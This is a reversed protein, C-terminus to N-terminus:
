RNRKRADKQARRRRKRREAERQGLTMTHAVKPSVPVVAEGKRMALVAAREDDTLVRGFREVEHRAMAARKRARASDGETAAALAAAADAALRDAPTLSSMARAKALTAQDRAATIHADAQARAEAAIDAEAYERLKDQVDEGIRYLHGTETNM